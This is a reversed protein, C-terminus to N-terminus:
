YRYVLRAGKPFAGDEVRTRQSLTVVALNGCGDFARKGVAAVSDPIAINILRACGAFTWEGIATVSEPIVLGTLNKCEAFAGAGIATVSEPIVLRTLNVCRAFAREGISRVSDPLLIRKLSRCAFFARDEIATVLGPIVVTELSGCGSFVGAGIARVSDPIVVRKLSKCICFAMMGIATVSEPIVIGNLNKCGYFAGAGIATVSAPIVVSELNGCVYFATMGIGTVPKGNIRDPIVLDEEKGTYRLITVEGPSRPAAARRLKKQATLAPPLPRTQAPAPPPVPKHYLAELLLIIEEAAQPAISYDQELVGILRAKMRSMDSAGTIERIERHFGKELALTFLRTRRRHTGRAYDALVAKWRSRDDLLALGYREVIQKVLDQFDAAM